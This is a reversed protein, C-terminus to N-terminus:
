ANKEYPHLEVDNCANKEEILIYLIIYHSPM